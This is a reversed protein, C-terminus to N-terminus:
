CRMPITGIRLAATRFLAQGPHSDSCHLRVRRVSVTVGAGIKLLRLRITECQARAMGTGSLALQRLSQMLVYACSSLYLRIQNSHMLRKSTRDVFMTVKAENIRNEMDGRSCYLSEYLERALRTNRALILM